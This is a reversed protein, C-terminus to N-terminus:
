KKKSTVKSRRKKALYFPDYEEGTRMLHLMVVALKRALAIVAKKKAGVGGRRLIKEGYRRIDSDQGFPGLIYHAAQVLLRRVLDDGTKTIGLQPNREGSQDLRPVLGFYSAVKRGIPFRDPDEVKLVFATATLLGVGHIQRLVEVQPYREKGVGEIEREFDKIFENLIGVLDLLPVLVPQLDEPVSGLAKHPFSEPSSSPLRVGFPKVVGRCHAVLSSRMRVLADRAELLARDARTQRSVHKIPALLKPDVRALQALFLADARDTKRTNQSILKVRRPNAVITEHGLDQSIEEMWPSHAGVEFAVRSPRFGSLFARLRRPNTSIAGSRLSKGEPSLVHFHTKRDSVDLGISLMGTNKTSESM